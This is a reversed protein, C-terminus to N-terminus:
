WVKGDIFKEIIKRKNSQSVKYIFMVFGALMEYGVNWIGFMWGKLYEVDWADRMRLMRCRLCGVNRYCKYINNNIYYILMIQIINIDNIHTIYKYINFVYIFLFGTHTHTACHCNFLFFLTQKVFKRIRTIRLWTQSYYIYIYLVYIYIYVYIYMYIYIHIYTYTYIIYTCINTYTYMYTTIFSGIIWSACHAWIECFCSSRLIYIYDHFCHSRGTIVVIAKHCSM